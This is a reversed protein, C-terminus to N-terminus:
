AVTLPKTPFLGERTVKPIIIFVLISCGSTYDEDEDNSCVRCHCRSHCFGTKRDQGQSSRAGHFREGNRVSIPLVVTLCRSAEHSLTSSCSMIARQVARSFRSQVQKRRPSTSHIIDRTNRSSCTKPRRTFSSPQVQGPLRIAVNSRSRTVRYCAFRIV